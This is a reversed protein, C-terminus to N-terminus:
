RHEPPVYGRLASGASNPRSPTRLQLGKLQNRMSLQGQLNSSGHQVPVTCAQALGRRLGPGRAASRASGHHPFAHSGARGMSRPRFPLQSAMEDDAGVQTDADWEFDADRRLHQQQQQRSQNHMAAPAQGPGQAKCPTVANLGHLRKAPANDGHVARSCLTRKAPTVKDAPVHSLLHKPPTCATDRMQARRAANIAMPHPKKPARAPPRTPTPTAPWTTRSPAAWDARSAGVHCISESVVGMMAGNALSTQYRPIQLM